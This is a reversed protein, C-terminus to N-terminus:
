SQFVDTVTLGTSSVDEQAADVLSQCFALVDRTGARRHIEIETDTPRPNVLPFEEDLLTILQLATAPLHRDTSRM